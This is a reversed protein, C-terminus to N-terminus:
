KAKSRSLIEGLTDETSLWVVRPIKGTCSKYYGILLLNILGLETSLGLLDPRELKCQRGRDSERRRKSKWYSWEQYKPLFVLLGAANPAPQTIPTEMPVFEVCKRPKPQSM